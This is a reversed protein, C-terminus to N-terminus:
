VPTRFKRYMDQVASLSQNNLPLTVPEGSEASLDARSVDGDGQARKGAVGDASHRAACMRPFHLTEPAMQGAYVHDVWEGPMTSMPYQTGDKM